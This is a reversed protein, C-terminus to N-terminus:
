STLPATRIDTITRMESEVPVDRSTRNTGNAVFHLAGDIAWLIAQLNQQTVAAGALGLTGGLALGVAAVVNTPHHM